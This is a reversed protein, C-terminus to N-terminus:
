MLRKVKQFNEIDNIGYEENEAQLYIIEECTVPGVSVIERQFDYYRSWPKTIDPNLLFNNKKVDAVLIVFFNGNETESWWDQIIREITDFDVTWSEQLQGKRFPEIMVKKEHYVEGPEIDTPEYGLIKTLDKLDIDFIMRYAKKYKSPVRLVNKYKGQKNLKDLTPIWTSLEWMEGSYHNELAQSLRKEKPTNQEPNKKNPLGLEDGFLHDEFQEKQLAKKVEEKILKELEKKKM